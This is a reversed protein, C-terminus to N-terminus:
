ELSLIIYRGVFGGVIDILHINDKNTAGNIEFFLLFASGSCKGNMGERM